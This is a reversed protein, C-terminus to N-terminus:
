RALGPPSICAFALIRNSPGENRLAANLQLSCRAGHAHPRAARRQDILFARSMLLPDAERTRPQERCAQDHSSSLALGSNRPRPLVAATPRLAPLPSASPEFGHTRGSSSLAPDHFQSPGFQGGVRLSQPAQCCMTPRSFGAFQGSPTSAVKTRWVNSRRHSESSTRSGFFSFQCFRCFSDVCPVTFPM